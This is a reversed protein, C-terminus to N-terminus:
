ENAGKASTSQRGSGGEAVGAGRMLDGISVGNIRCTAVVRDHDFIDGKKGLEPVCTVRKGMAIRELTAKAERGGKQSLEPAYFDAVRVEVWTNPGNGTAFCLGDGDGVYTVKGSLPQGERIWTPKPGKKTIAECPDALATAPLAASVALAILGRWRGLGHHRNHVRLRVLRRQEPLCLDSDRERLHARDPRFARGLRALPRLLLRASRQAVDPRASWRVSRAHPHNRRSASFTAPENQDDRAGMITEVISWSTGDRSALDTM